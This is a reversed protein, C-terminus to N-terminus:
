EAPVLPLIFNQAQVLYIVLYNNESAYKYYPNDDNSVYNTIQIWISTSTTQTEIQALVWSFIM